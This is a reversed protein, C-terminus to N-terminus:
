SIGMIEDLSAKIHTTCASKLQTEDQTEIAQIVDLIEKFFVEPMIIAPGALWFRLYHNLLRDLMVALQNNQTSQYIIQHFEVDLQIIERKNIGATLQRIRGRLDKLRELSEPLMRQMAWVNAQVEMILRIETIERIRELTLPSVTFHSGNRVVWEEGELRTLAITLPNRSIDYEKALKVLNLTTGPPLDLWIIKRKLDEYISLPTM